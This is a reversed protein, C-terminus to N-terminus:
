GLVRWWTRQVWQGARHWWVWGLTSDAIHIRAVGRLGPRMADTSGVIRGDVEFINRGDLTTAVPAIRTVTFNVSDQALAAFLVQARQGVHLEGIDQEDVEAVVRFSREPALTLLEQGRKVPMGISQTLDGALVVGDFPAKLQLRELQSQVLGLQAQVQDLKSRAIVIQAPDDKSLAERYAKDLQALEASSKERELVLDQDDLTVLVQDASVTAGPRLTVAQIFGDVPAAVIRQGEGEVRAQAVVRFSAPWLAVGVVLVVAALSGLPWAGLWWPGAKAARPTVADVIRGALPQDIRHKLELVPGVFTAADKATEVAYADFGGRREFLLAGFKQGRGLIPVSCIALGGNLQALDAHAQTSVVSSGPPLPHVIVAAQDLAEDMADRIAGVVKQQVRIDATNSMAGIQIQGQRHFGISVRECGMRLALETVVATAATGFREHALARAQLALVTGSRSPQAARQPAAAVPSAPPVAVTREREQKETVPHTM